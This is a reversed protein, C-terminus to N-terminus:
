DQLQNSIQPIGETQKALYAQHKKSKRHASMGSKAFISGCDCTVKIKREEKQTELHEKYTRGPIVSNLTAGLREICEREIKWLDESCTVPADQVKIVEWNCFGGHTRIFRYVPTNHEFSKENNCASKHSSRRTSLKTTSGVYVDKVSLDKCCIKYIVAKSYDVPTRPM